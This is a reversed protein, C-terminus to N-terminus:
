GSVSSEFRGVKLHNLRAQRAREHHQREPLQHRLQDRRRVGDGEHVQVARVRHNVDRQGELGDAHRV